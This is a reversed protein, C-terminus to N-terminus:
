SLFYRVYVNLFCYEFVFVDLRTYSSMDGISPYVPTCPLVEKLKVEKHNTFNLEKYNGDDDEGFIDKLLDTVM